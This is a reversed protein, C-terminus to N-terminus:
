TAPEGQLERSLPARGHGPQVRASWQEADGALPDRGGTDALAIKLRQREGLVGEVGDGREVGDLVRGIRGGGQSLQAPDGLGPCENSYDGPARGLAALAAHDEGRDAAVAVAVALHRPVMRASRARCAPLAPRSPPASGRAPPRPAWGTRRDRGPCRLASEATRLAPEAPWRARRRATWGCLAPRPRRRCGGARRCSGGPCNRGTGSRGPTVWRGRCGRAPKWSGWGGWGPM